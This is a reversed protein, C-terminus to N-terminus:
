RAEDAIGLQRYRLVAAVIEFPDRARAVGIATQRRRGGVVVSHFGHIRFPHRRARRM